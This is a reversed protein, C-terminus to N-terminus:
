KLKEEQTKSLTIREAAYTVVSIMITKYIRVKTGSSHVICKRFGKSNDHKLKKQENSHRYINLFTWKKLHLSKM